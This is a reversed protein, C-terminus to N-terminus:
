GPRGVLVSLHPQPHIVRHHRLPKASAAIVAAPLVGYNLVLLSPWRLAVLRAIIEDHLATRNGGPPFASRAPMRRYYDADRHDTYLDEAGGWPPDGFILDPPAADAPWASFFDSEFLRVDVAHARANARALELAAADVDLGAVSWHPHELKLSIAMTGAGVGFELVSPPRGVAQELARGEATVQDVLHTVEPDTIYARPDVAFRRGRFLLFGAAYAAPEGARVRERLAALRAPDGAAALVLLAEDDPAPSADSPHM